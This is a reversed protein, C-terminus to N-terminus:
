LFYILLFTKLSTQYFLRQTKFNVAFKNIFIKYSDNFILLKITQSSTIVIIIWLFWNIEALISPFVIFIRPYKKDREDDFMIDYVM